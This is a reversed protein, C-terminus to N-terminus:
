FLKQIASKYDDVAGPMCNVPEKFDGLVITDCGSSNSSLFGDLMDSSFLFSFCFFFSPSSFSFILNEIHGRLTFNIYQYLGSSDSFLLFTSLLISYSKGHSM